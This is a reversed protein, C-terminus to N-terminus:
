EEVKFNPKKVPTEEKDDSKTSSKKVDEDIKAQSYLEERYRKFYNGLSNPTTSETFDRRIRYYIENEIDTLVNNNAEVKPQLERTVEENFTKSIKGQKHLEDMNTAFQDMQENALGLVQQYTMLQSTGMEKVKDKPKKAM